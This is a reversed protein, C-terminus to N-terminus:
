NVVTQFALPGGNAEAGTNDSTKDADGRTRSIDRGPSSNNETHTTTNSAVVRRLELIEEAAIIGEIDKSDMANTAEDSVDESRKESRLGYVIIKM